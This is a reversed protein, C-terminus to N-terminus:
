TAIPGNVIRIIHQKDSYFTLMRVNACPKLYAEIAAHLEFRTICIEFGKKTAKKCRM